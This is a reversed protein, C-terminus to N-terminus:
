GPKGGSPHWDDVAIAAKESKELNVRTRAVDPLVAPGASDPLHMPDTPGKKCIIAESM